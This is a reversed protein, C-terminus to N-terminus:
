SDDLTLSSLPSLSMHECPSSSTSSSSSSSSTSSTTSSLESSSSSCKERDASKVSLDPTSLRSFAGSDSSLSSSSSSCAITRKEEEEVKVEEYIGEEEEGEETGRDTLPQVFDKEFRAIEEAVNFPIVNQYIPSSDLSLPSFDLNTSFARARGQPSTTTSSTRGTPSSSTSSSYPQSIMQTSLRPRRPTKNMSPERRLLSALSLSHQLSSKWPPRAPTSKRERIIFTSTDRTRTRSSSSERSSGGELRSTDVKDISMNVKDTSIDVKDTSVDLTDITSLRKYSTLVPLSAKRGRALSGWRM